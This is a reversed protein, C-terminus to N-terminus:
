ARDCAAHHPIRGHDVVDRAGHRLLAHGRLGRLTPHDQEDPIAHAPGPYVPWAHAIVAAARRRAPIVLADGICVFQLQETHRVSSRTRGRCPAKTAWRKPCAPFHRVDAVDRRLGKAMYFRLGAECCRSTSRARGRLYDRGQRRDPGPVAQGDANRRLDHSINRRHLGHQRRPRRVPRGVFGPQERRPQRHADAPGEHEMQTYGRSRGSRSSPARRVYIRAASHRWGRRRPEGEALPCTAREM